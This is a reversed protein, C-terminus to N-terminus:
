RYLYIANSLIWPYSRKRFFPLMTREQFVQVRYNGPDTVTIGVNSKHHYEGVPVGDKMIQIISRDDDPVDVRLKAELGMRLSDGLSAESSDSYASFFFGRPDELGSLAVFSNGQRLANLLIKRDHDYIGNFEDRTVIVTQVQKFMSQYSPYHIIMNKRVLLRSHADASGIGVVKRTKNLDDFEKMEELPYSLLYNLADERFLFVIFGGLIRNFGSFTLSKRWNEDLNFFEFGTYSPLNWDKWSDKKHPHFPHALFIMDGMRAATQFTSDPPVPGGPIPPISDGMVLFHGFEKHPTMEVAPVILTRGAKKLPIDKMSKTYNHDSPIIFDLGMRDATGGIEEYTGGGDSYTTHIHVVGAYEYYKGSRRQLTMEEYHRVGLGPKGSETFVLGAESYRPPEIKGRRTEQYVTGSLLCNTMTIFLSGGFIAIITLFVLNIM